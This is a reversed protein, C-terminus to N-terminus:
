AEKTTPTTTIPTNTQHSSLTGYWRRVTLSNLPLTNEPDHRAVKM